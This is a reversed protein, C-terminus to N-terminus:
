PRSEDQPGVLEEADLKAEMEAHCERIANFVAQPDAAVSFEEAQQDTRNLLQPSDRRLEELLQIIKAGKQDGLIALELTLQERHSVLENERRQTILILITIYLGLLEGLDQLTQFTATDFAAGVRALGVNVAIWLIVFVTLFAVFRPRGVFQVSREVVHHISSANRRHERHLEAIAQVTEEVYAPLKQLPDSQDSM